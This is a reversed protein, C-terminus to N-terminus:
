ASPRLPGHATSGAASPDAVLATFRNEAYPLGLRERLTAAPTGEAPAAEILGRRVLLPVVEDALATLGGPLTTPRLM